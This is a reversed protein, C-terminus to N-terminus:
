LYERFDDLPADFDPAMYTILGKAFGLKRRGKPAPVPGLEAVVKGHRQIHFRQGRQVEALLESLRTKAELTGIQKVKM